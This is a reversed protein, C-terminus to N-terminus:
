PADAARRGAWTLVAMWTATIGLGGLERWREVNLTKMRLDGFLEAWTISTLGQAAIGLGWALSIALLVAPPRWDPRRAAVAAVGTAAVYVALWPLADPDNLQVVASLAFLAAFILTAVRLPLPM